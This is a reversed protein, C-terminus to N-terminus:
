QGFNTDLSLNMLRLLKQCIFFVLDSNPISLGKLKSMLIPKVKLKNPMAVMGKQEELNSGPPNGKWFICHM